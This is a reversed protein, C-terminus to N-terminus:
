KRGNGSGERLKNPWDKLLAKAVESNMRMAHRITALDDIQRYTEDNFYEDLLKGRETFLEIVAAYFLLAVEVDLRMRRWEEDALAPTADTQPKSAADALEEATAGALPKAAATLEASSLDPPEKDPRKDTKKGPWNEQYLPEIIAPPAGSRGLQLIAERRMVECRDRVLRQSMMALTMEASFGKAVQYLSRSARILERPVGGALVHCLALFPLPVGTVRLDLLERAEEFTMPEVRIIEDFASDFATKIAPTQSAFIAM